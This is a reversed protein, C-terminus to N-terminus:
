YIKLCLENKIDKLIITKVNNKDVNSLQQLTTYYSSYSETRERNGKQKGRNNLESESQESNVFDDANFASERNTTLGDQTGETDNIYKENVRKRNVEGIEYSEAIFDVLWDWKENYLSNLYNAVEKGTMDHFVKHLQSQGYNVMLMTKVDFDDGVLETPINLNTEFDRKNTLWDKLLM